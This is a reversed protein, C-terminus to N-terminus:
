KRFAFYPMLNNTSKWTKNTNNVQFQESSLYFKVRIFIKQLMSFNSGWIKCPLYSASYDCLLYYLRKSFICILFYIHLIYYAQQVFWKLFSWHRRHYYPNDLRWAPSVFMSLNKGLFWCEVYGLSVISNQSNNYHPRTLFRWFKRHWFDDLDKEIISSYWNLLVNKTILM